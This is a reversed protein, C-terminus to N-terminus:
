EEFKVSFLEVYEQLRIVDLKKGYRGYTMHPNTHGVLEAVNHEKVDKDKLVDIFTHRLGYATPRNKPKMGLRTQLRGLQTRYTKSWDDDAGQPKYIFLPKNTNGTRSNVFDVFGNQILTSHLPVSRVAHENKLHQGDSADSVSIYYLENKQKIDGTFLQCAENPRLGAYLQLETIWKFDETMTQYLHSYMFQKLESKSWWVRQDRAFKESKFAPNISDAPNHQMYGMTKLWGLFQKVSAFYEKNTKGARGEQRLLDVYNMIHATTLETIGNKEIYNVFHSIRQELQHITLNSVKAKRKSEIFEALFKQYPQKHAPVCPDQPNYKKEINLRGNKVMNASFPGNQSKTGHYNERM